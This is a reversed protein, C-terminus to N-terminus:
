CTITRCSSKELIGNGCLALGAVRLQYMRYVDCQKSTQMNPGLASTASTVLRMRTQGRHISDIDHMEGWKM